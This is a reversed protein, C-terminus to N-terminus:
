QLCCCIRIEPEDFSEDDSCLTIWQVYMCVYFPLACMVSLMINIDSYSLSNFINIHISLKSQANSVYYCRHQIITTHKLSQERSVRSDSRSYYDTVHEIDGGTDIDAWKIERGQSEITPTTGHFNILSQKKSGPLRMSSRIQQVPATQIVQEQEPEPSTSRSSRGSECDEPRQIIELSDRIPKGHFMDSQTRQLTTVDSKSKNEEASAKEGSTGDDSATMSQGNDLGSGPSTDIKWKSDNGSEDHDEGIPSHTPEQHHETTNDSTSDAPEAAGPM